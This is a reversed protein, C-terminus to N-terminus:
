SRHRKVGAVPPSRLLIVQCYPTNDLTERTMPPCNGFMRSYGRDIGLLQKVFGEYTPEHPPFYQACENCPILATRKAFAASFYLCSDTAEDPYLSVLASAGHLLDSYADVFAQNFPERIFRLQTNDFCHLYERTQADQKGSAGFAPDVVTVRIGSRLLEVAVFGPDGGVEIVGEGQQLTQLGWQHIMGDVVRRAEWRKNNVWQQGEPTPIWDAWWHYLQGGEESVNYSDWDEASYGQKQSGDCTCGCACSGGPMCSTQPCASYLAM